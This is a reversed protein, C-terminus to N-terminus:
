QAGGVQGLFQEADDLTPLYRAMGWREALYSVAGLGDGPVSQHLTHGLLAFQAQLTVFRKADTDHTASPYALLDAEASAQSEGSAIFDTANQTTTATTTKFGGAAKKIPTVIM